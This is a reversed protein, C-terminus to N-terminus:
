ESSKTRNSILVWLGLGGLALVNLCLGIFGVLMGTNSHGLLLLWLQPMTYLSVVVGVCSSVVPLRFFKKLKRRREEQQLKEMIERRKDALYANVERELTEPAYPEGEFLDDWQEKLVQAIIQRQTGLERDTEQAIMHLDSEKSAGAALFKKQVRRVIEAYHIDLSPIDM